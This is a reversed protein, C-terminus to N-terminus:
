VTAALVLTARLPDIVIPLETIANVCSDGFAGAVHPIVSLANGGCPTLKGLAPPLMENFTTEALGAHAHVAALLLENRVIALPAAPLPLPVTVIVAAAFEAPVRVPVIVTPPMVSVTVCDPM